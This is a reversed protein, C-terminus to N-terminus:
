ATYAFYYCHLERQLHMRAMDCSFSNCSVKHMGDLPVVCQDLTKSGYRFLHEPM